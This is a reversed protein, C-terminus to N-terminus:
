RYISQTDSEHSSGLPCLVIGSVQVELDSTATDLLTSKTENEVYSNGTVNDM